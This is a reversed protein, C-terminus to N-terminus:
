KKNITLWYDLKETIRREKWLSVNAVFIGTNFSCKMPNFGLKKIRENEFNIYSAYNHQFLFM